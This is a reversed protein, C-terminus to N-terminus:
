KVVRVKQESPPYCVVCGEGHRGDHTGNGRLLGQEDKSTEDRRPMSNGSAGANGASHWRKAAANRASDRREQREKDLGRVTYRNQPKEIVLGSDLLQRVTANKPPMPASAPWMADALMLMRVWCAFARDNDYVSAFMPDDVLEHYVRSYPRTM